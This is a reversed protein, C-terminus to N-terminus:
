SSMGDLAYVGLSVISILLLTFALDAGFFLWWSHRDLDLSMQITAITGNALLLATIGALVRRQKRTIPM